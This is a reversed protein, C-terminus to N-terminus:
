QQMLSLAPSQQLSRLFTHTSLNYLRCGKDKFPEREPRPWELLLKGSATNSIDVQLPTAPIPELGDEFGPRMLRACSYLKTNAPQFSTRSPDRRAFHVVLECEFLGLVYVEQLSLM